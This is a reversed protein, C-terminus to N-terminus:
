GQGFDFSMCYGTRWMPYTVDCRFGVFDDANLGRSAFILERLEAYRRWADTKARDGGRGLVQLTPPNPFRTQWREGANQAFDPRWLHADLAPICRSAIDRHLYADLVLRRVPFNVLAWIEELEPSGAAPHSMIGTMGFMFDVGTESSQSAEIAQVISEGPQTASM